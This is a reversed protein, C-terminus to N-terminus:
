LFPESSILLQQEQLPGPSPEWGECLHKCFDAMPNGPFSVEESGTRVEYMCHEKIYALKMNMCMFNFFNFLMCIHEFVCDSYNVLIM